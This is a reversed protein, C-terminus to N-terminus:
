GATVHLYSAAFKITLYTLGFACILAAGLVITMETIQITWQLGKRCGLLTLTELERTRLRRTLAVILALLAGMALTVLSHHADLFDRIRLIMGMLEDIVVPSKLVQLSPHDEYDALLLAQAKKSKPRILVATLPSTEPDEHSHFSDANEETIELHKKILKPSTGNHDLSPDHGHWIGEIIWATELSVFVTTDDATGSPALVATINLKMPYEGALDFLNERDTLLTDGPRLGLKTAVTAGLECDGHIQMAKGQRIKRNRFHFYNKRTGVVPYGQSTFKSHVPIVEGIELQKLKDYEGYPVDGNNRTRFYLGHLVLDFRSGKPGIVLPTSAARAGITRDFKDVLQHTVLPLYFAITVGLVMVTSQGPHTWLYRWALFFSPM